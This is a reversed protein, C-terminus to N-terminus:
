TLFVNNDGNALNNVMSNLDEENYNASKETGSFPSGEVERETATNM